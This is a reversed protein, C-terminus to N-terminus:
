LMNIAFAAAYVVLTAIIAYIAFFKFFKKNDM